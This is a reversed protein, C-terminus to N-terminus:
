IKCYFAFSDYIRELAEILFRKSTAFNLRQFGAGDKGFLRGDSLGVSAENILIETIQKSSLQLATFDLWSLYTAETNVPKIAPLNESFFKEIITKNEELYEVLKDVYSGGHTYAQIIALNGFVNGQELHFKKFFNSYANRIKENQIIIASTSLGALNFTKSPSVCTITNNKAFDNIKATPIHKHDKYVVDHHIEDSIILVNYKECLNIMSKLESERWVKGVPNHPSCLIFLKVGDKIKNEFDDLDVTYNGNAYLLQNELLKRNHDKVAWFFPFYVPTQVMVKDGPKTFALIAFNIAPVIGPSFLVDTPDIEWEHREKMWMKVANEFEDPRFSYGYINHEIRKNFDNKIFDPSEFDMDAVWMPYQIEKGFVSKAGDYKISNTNRRNLTKM